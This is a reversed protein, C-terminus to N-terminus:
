LQFARFIVWYSQNEVYQLPRAGSLPVSICIQFDGYVNKNMYFYYGPFNANKITLITSNNVLFTQIKRLLLNIKFMNQKQINRFLCKAIKVPIVRFNKSNLIRFKRFM